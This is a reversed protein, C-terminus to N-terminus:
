LADFFRAEGTVADVLVIVHSPDTVEGDRRTRPYTLVWRNPEREASDCPGVDVLSRKVFDDGIAVADARERKPKM